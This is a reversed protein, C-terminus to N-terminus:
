LPFCVRFCTSGPKSELSVSGGHRKLVSRVIDLGMGTGEGIGKTTFFPEFIRSQIDEPVGPGNDTVDVCLNDRRRYTRIGIKGSGDKAVADLANSILNTWVQNLEGELVKINPLDKGLEKKLKVNGQKFKFKLMTVTSKIGEHIDKFEMSADNDMHSYTKISAILEAIRSSATQIEGVLGETTLNTEIWWIVSRIADEPIAEVIRDLHETKFDWDIFTDIVEDADDIGHDEFWDELEDNRDERELLSLDSTDSCNRIRDFLVENVVDVSEPTANMTMLSKFREPTQGLHRHLEQSSRVIASAPNNLEHALGASMKGLALLKEDMLRMNQFDRVRDTMIGVFSQVLDYSVNVMEVFQDKHIRLLQVNELALGEASTKKMRSFPLIGMVYPAEWVGMEKNRGDQIRRILYSGKLMIDMYEVPADNEFVIEDKDFCVFKSHEILWELSSDELHEFMPMARLQELLDSPKECQYM